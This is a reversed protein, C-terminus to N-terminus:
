LIILTISNPCVNPYELWVIQFDRVLIIRRSVRSLKLTELSIRMSGSYINQVPTFTTIDTTFSWQWNWVSAPQLCTTPEVQGLGCLWLTIAILKETGGRLGKLMLLLQLTGVKQVLTTGLRISCRFLRSFSRTWMSTVICSQVDKQISPCFSYIWETSWSSHLQFKDSRVVKSLNKTTDPKKFLKASWLSELLELGLSMGIM